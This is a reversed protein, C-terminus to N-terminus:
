KPLYVPIGVFPWYFFAALLTLIFTVFGIWIGARIMESTSYYGYAYTVIGSPSQTPLFVVSGAFLSILGIWIPNIGVSRGLNIVLPMMTAVVAMMNSMGLRVGVTLVFIVIALVLPSFNGIYNLVFQTLDSIVETKQMADAITLGAGFLIIVGWNVERSAEKWSMIGIKPLMLLLAALLEAPITNSLNFVWLFLLIIFVVLVRKEHATFAGMEKLAKDMFAKGGPFIEMEPPYLRTFIYYISVTILFSVPANALFWTMYNFHYDLLEQFLGVSYIMTSSGVMTSSSSILSLFALSAFISKGINSPPSIRFASLLGVVMTLMLMTRGMIAPVLFTFLFMTIIFLFFFARVRGKAFRLIHFAFRRDLGSKNVAAAFIFIGMLRWIITEGLQSVAEAYPIVNMLPMLVLIAVAVLTSDLADTSWLVTASLLIALVKYQAPNGGILWPLLMGIVLIALAIVLAIPKKVTDVGTEPKKELMKVSM